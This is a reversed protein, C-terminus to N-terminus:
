AHNTEQGALLTEITENELDRGSEIEIDLCKELQSLFQWYLTQYHRAEALLYRAYAAQGAADYNRGPHQSLAIATQITM